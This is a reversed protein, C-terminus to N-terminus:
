TQKVCHVVLALIVISIAVFFITVFIGIIIYGVAAAFFVCTLQGKMQLNNYIVVTIVKTYIYVMFKMAKTKM